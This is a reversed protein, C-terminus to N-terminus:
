RQKRKSKVIVNIPNKKGTPKDKRNIRKTLLTRKPITSESSSPRQTVCKIQHLPVGERGCKKITERYSEDSIVTMNQLKPFTTLNIMEKTKLILFYFLKLTKESFCHWM